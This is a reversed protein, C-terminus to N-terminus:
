GSLVQRELERSVEEYTRGVSGLLGEVEGLANGRGLAEIERALAALSSAGVHASSSKLSHAVRSVSEADQAALAARLSELLSPTDRLYLTVVRQVLDPHGPRQLGRILGLAGGNLPGDAATGAAAPPSAGAAPAPDEAPVWRRLVGRLREPDLPKTLFDDMGAGLHRRRSEETADATLAVVRVHRGTGREGSRIRRVTEVGDMLPMLSDLLVLDFHARGLAELAERGNGATDVRCGFGELILRAVEQNTANDEVVLVRAAIPAPGEEAGPAEPAVAVGSAAAVAELLRARRVPRTVVGRLM